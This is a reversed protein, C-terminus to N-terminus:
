TELTVSSALSVPLSAKHPIIKVHRALPTWSEALLQECERYPTLTYPQGM